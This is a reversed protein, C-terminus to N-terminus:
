PKAKVPTVTYPLQARLASAIRAPNTKSPDYTVVAQKREYSVRAAAVGPVKKLVLQVATACSGCTMGEIHLTTGAAAPRADAAVASPTLCCPIVAILALAVLAFPVLSKM